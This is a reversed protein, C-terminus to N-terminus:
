ISKSPAAPSNIPKLSRTGIEEVPETPRGVRAWIRSDGAFRKMSAPLKLVQDLGIRSPWTQRTDPLRFGLDGM